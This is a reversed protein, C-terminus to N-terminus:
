GGGRHPRGLPRKRLHAASEARSEAIRTEQDPRDGMRSTSASEQTIM